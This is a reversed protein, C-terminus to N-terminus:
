HKQLILNQIWGQSSQVEARSWCRLLHLPLYNYLLKTINKQINYHKCYLIIFTFTAKLWMIYAHFETPLINTYFYITFIVNNFFRFSFNKVFNYEMNESFLWQVSELCNFLIHISHICYKTCIIIVFLIKNITKYQINLSLM